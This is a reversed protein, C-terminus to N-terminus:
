SDVTILILYILILYILGPIDTFNKIFSTNDRKVTVVEDIEGSPHWYRNYPDDPSRVFDKAGFAVRKRWRHVDEMDNTDYAEPALERIILASIFPIQDPSTQAVCVSINDRKPAYIVEHYYSESSSTEVTVWPNGDFQLDFSPPSSKGDYNGYFFSARIMHKRGRAAGPIVYCSKKQFPFYRLTNQEQYYSNNVHVKATQGTNIYDGDGVWKIGLEDTRTGTSDGCDISLSLKDAFGSLIQIAICLGAFLVVSGAM